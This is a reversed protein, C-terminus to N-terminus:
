QWEQNRRHADGDEGNTIPNQTAAQIRHSLRSKGILAPM